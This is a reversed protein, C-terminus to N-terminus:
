RTWMMLNDFSVINWELIYNKMFFFDFCFKGSSYKPNFCYNGERWKATPLRCEGSLNISRGKNIQINMGEEKWCLFIDEMTQRRVFSQWWNVGFYQSKRLNQFHLLFFNLWSWFVRLIEKKMKLADFDSFNM